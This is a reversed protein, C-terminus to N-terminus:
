KGVEEELATEGMGNIKLIAQLLTETINSPMATIKAHEDDGFMRSGEENMLSISIAIATISGVGNKQIDLIKLELKERSATDLEKIPLELKGIKVVETKFGIGLLDDKLM